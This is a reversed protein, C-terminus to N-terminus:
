DLHGVDERYGFLSALRSAAAELPKVADANDIRLFVRLTFRAPASLSTEETTLFEDDLITELMQALAAEREDGPEFTRYLREVAGLLSVVSGPGAPGGAEGGTLLWTPSVNLLGAMVILKNSRPESRDAEWNRLTVTKVGLRRALQTATLGAAERAMVIRDGLTFSPRDSVVYKQKSKQPMHQGVLPM